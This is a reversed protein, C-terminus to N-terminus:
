SLNRRAEAFGNEWFDRILTDEELFTAWLLALSGKQFSYLWLGVHDM